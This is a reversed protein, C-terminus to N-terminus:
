LLGESEIVALVKNFMSQMKDRQKLKDHFAEAERRERGERAQDALHIQAITEMASAIRNLDVRIQTMNEQVFRAHGMMVSEFESAM